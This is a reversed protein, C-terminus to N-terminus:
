SEYFIKLGLYVALAHEVRAGESREWGTLMVVADSAMIASIDREMCMKLNEKANIAVCDGDYGMDEDMQAPNFVRGVMPNNSWKRAADFFAPFNSNKYGRMPGAIYVTLKNTTSEM